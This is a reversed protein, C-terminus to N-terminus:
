DKCHLDVLRQPLRRVGTSHRLWLNYQLPGDSLWTCETHTHTHTHTHTRTRTRTHTHTHAHTHTYIYIYIYIYIYMCEHTGVHCGLESVLTAPMEAFGNLSLTLTLVYLFFSLFSVNNFPCSGMAGRFYGGIAPWWM